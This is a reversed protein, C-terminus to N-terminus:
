TPRRGAAPYCARGTGVSDASAELDSLVATACLLHYFTSAPMFALGPAGDPGMRDMWGGPVGPDLIHAHLLDLWRGIAAAMGPRAHRAEEVSAKLAEAVPWARLTTRHPTGDDLVEDLILGLANGGHLTAHRHLGEVPAEVPEGSALAFRRLLWIWEYHHGPERIRGRIDALPQWRADFHEALSGSRPDYLRTSFLAFLARARALYREAGSAEYLALCAEFLHMHPNQGLVAGAEGAAPRYGGAPAAAFRDLFALIADALALGDPEGTVRRHWAAALLVFAHAYTDRTADAVAGSRSVAHVLGPEDPQRYTTRMAHFARAALEAGDPFWGRDYALAYCVIQRAQVMLRHPLGDIPRGALTLREEFLAARADFGVDAWLPLAHTCAWHRLRAIRELTAAECIVARTM